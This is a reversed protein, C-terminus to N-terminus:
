TFVSHQSFKWVPLTRLKRLVLTGQRPTQTKRRITLLQNASDGGTVWGGTRSCDGTRVALELEVRTMWYHSFVFLATWFGTVLWHHNLALVTVALAWAYSQTPSPTSFRPSGSYDCKNWFSQSYSTDWCCSLYFFLLEGVPHKWLPRHAGPSATREPRALLNAKLDEALM